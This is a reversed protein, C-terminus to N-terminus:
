IGKVKLLPKYFTVQIDDELLKCDECEPCLNENLNMFRTLEEFTDFNYTHIFNDNDCEVIFRTDILNINSLKTLIEQAQNLTIKAEYALAQPSISSGPLLTDLFDSIFILQDNSINQSLDTKLM